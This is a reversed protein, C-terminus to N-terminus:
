TLPATAFGVTFRRCWIVVTDYTDLDIDASLEYNQDGINGKLEELEVFDGRITADDADADASTLWVVLDPGNDTEFDEFRLVREGDVDFVSATGVAAYDNRGAFEGSSLQVPGESGAAGDDAAQDGDAAADAAAQDGSADDGSADDGAAGETDAQEGEIVAADGGAASDDVAQGGDDADGEEVAAPFAEDVRDDLFLAQPEFWIVAFVVLAALFALGALFWPRPMGLIRRPSATGSATDEVPDPTRTTTM